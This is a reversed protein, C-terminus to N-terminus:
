EGWGERRIHRACVLAARRTFLVQRHYLGAQHGWRRCWRCRAEVGVVPTYYAGDSGALFDHAETETLTVMKM